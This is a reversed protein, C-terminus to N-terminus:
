NGNQGNKSGPTTEGSAARAEAQLRLKLMIEVQKLGLFLPQEMRPLTELKIEPTEADVVLPLKEGILEKPFQFDSVVEVLFFAEDSRHEIALGFLGVKERGKPGWRFRNNWLTAVGVEGKLLRTLGQDEFGTPLTAVDMIPSLREKREKQRIQATERRRETWKQLAQSIRAWEGINGDKPRDLGEDWEQAKKPLQDNELGISEKVRVSMWGSQCFAELLVAQTASLKVFLLGEDGQSVKTPNFGPTAQVKLKDLKEENTRARTEAEKVFIWGSAVLRNERDPLYLLIDRGGSITVGRETGYTPRVIRHVLKEEAAEDLFRRLGGMTNIWRLPREFREVVNRLSDRLPINDNFPKFNDLLSQVESDEKAWDQLVEEQEEWSSGFWEERAQKESMTLSIKYIAFEDIQEVFGAFGRAIEPSAQCDKADHLTKRLGTVSEAAETAQLLRERLSLPSSPKAANAPNATKKTRRATKETRAEELGETLWGSQEPSM